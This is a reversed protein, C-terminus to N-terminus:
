VRMLARWRVRASVWTPFADASLDLNDVLTQLVARANPGAINVGAYASTVNAIDVDMRWQANWKLMQQYVRDVGGTTATVYYHQQHLRCAVGDDIVVGAENCLLAYRARGVPQKVFGFTYFRNLFEGADPGRLELGGLTSVDVLGVNTRVQTVEAAIAQERGEADDKGAGRYYAPRYWAGAQLMQAGAELHRYHMASKREPYFSRGASHALTEPAFPPRATTVGTEAVTKGTAQAALRAAALASHRGQSPGMGCTSYRKVLQIHDYGDHVANIIDAIQLDEDYDVFEKGSPHPYIPWPHNEMKWGADGTGTVAGRLECNEPLGTLTFIATSDNYSLQAGAQCPLQYAPTYGVSMCILDCDLYRPEDSGSKARVEMGAVRKGRLDPIARVPEYNHLVEIDRQSVADTLEDPIPNERLDLVQVKIGADALDLAVGYGDSNGTMVLAQKGPAVGYIRMLRQAASGMIVGPLDNNHFLAQQEMAGVALICNEARIKYLRRGQVVPLWNDAFWGNCTARTMVRIHPNVEVEAVLRDRVEIAGTGAADIRAYNLSGGLQPNEDVLIVEQGKTAAELAANMGAPGGGVVMLDAHLYQKDFVGKDLQDQLPNFNPDIVGLGASRRILKAWREWIGRPRFFAKYYFGVPLFRSFRGLIAWPDHELSGSCNQPQVDLGEEIATTDALTNPNSPLQVLSNGDQGAMTLPGRPRHYKFSRSFLWQENAILASAITDGEVGTYSKGNFCFSIKQERRIFRGFPLSLRDKM